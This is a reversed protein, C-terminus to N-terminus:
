QSFTTNPLSMALAAFISNVADGLLGGQIAEAQRDSGPALGSAEGTATLDGITEVGSVLFSRPAHSTLHPALCPKPSLASASPHTPRKRMCINDTPRDHM